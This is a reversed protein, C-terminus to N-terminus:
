GALNRPVPNPDAKINAPGAAADSGEGSSGDETEADRRGPQEAAQRQGDQNARQQRVPQAV